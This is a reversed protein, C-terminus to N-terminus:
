GLSVRNGNGGGPVKKLSMKFTIEVPVTKSQLVEYIRSIFCIEHHITQKNVYINIHIHTNSGSDTFEM